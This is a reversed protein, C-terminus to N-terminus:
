PLYTNYIYLADSINHQESNHDGAAGTTVLIYQEGNKEALSALCLGAEETYGTKGGIIEGGDLGASSMEQFLTSGFTLGAPHINTSHTTYQRTTFIERFTENKLAYALLKALDRVTTYHGPDHLGSVNVFHTDKMGLAEAKRNMLDVFGSESGSIHLALSEAADAGSPLMTGYLLDVARVKENPAFGAVSADNQSLNKFIEPPLTIEEQLDGINELAVLTTMIKTLSAPYTKADSAKQCVVKGSSLDVLIAHSSSIEDGLAIAEATQGDLSSAAPASLLLNKGFHYAGLLIFALLVTSIFRRVYKGYKRRKPAAARRRKVM